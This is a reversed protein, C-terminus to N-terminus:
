HVKVTKYYFSILLFGKEFLFKTLPSISTPSSSRFYLLVQSTKEGHVMLFLLKKITITEKRPKKQVLDFGLFFKQFSFRSGKSASMQVKNPPACQLLLSGLPAMRGHACSQCSLLSCTPGAAQRTPCCSPHFPIGLPIQPKRRHQSTSTLHMVLSQM